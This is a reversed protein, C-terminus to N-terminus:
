RPVLFLQNWWGQICFLLMKECLSPCAYCHLWSEFWKCDYLLMTMPFHTISTIKHIGARSNDPFWSYNIGGAKFAFFYCKRCLSPCPYFHLWAEFWKCDYLLVTMPLHTISTIKHIGARSNDPFWSYNIGGAKFAFFYCKRVFHHALMFTFGPSLGNAIMFCCLWPFHTISTIKHIGARSNDPFWSYNIGGAKFAFLLMKECLSPCAYFHLWSEFWKCDYLLVTMPFHTISTIKHIGARFYQVLFLQNWWGQICFLLMKECLSPCAYFHLWSEFWKCDYLLVTMPFHTIWTIKHIGARSNDPFWSYNIGGAKFAFVTVNEWLTIPLCLLSALVWVMQLWLAACDHSLSYNINDQTNRALIIQSGPIISEVLRSHLFTVNEWLTIPLCLLSALVWAM